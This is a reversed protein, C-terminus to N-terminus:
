TRVKGQDIMALTLRQFLRQLVHVLAIETAQGGTEFEIGPGEEPCDHIGPDPVASQVKRVYDLFGEV